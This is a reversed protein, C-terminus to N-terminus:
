DRDSRLHKGVRLDGLVASTRFLGNEDVCALLLAIYRDLAEWRASLFRQDGTWRWEDRLMLVWRMGWDWATVDLFSQPAFALFRGDALRSEEALMLVRRRAASSGGAWTDALQTRPQIDELWAGDERGPTDVYVDTNSVEAQIKALSIIQELRPDGGDFSGAWDLPYQSKILGLKDLTVSGATPFYIAVMLYRSTREDPLDAAEQGRGVTIYQDFYHRGVTDGTHIAGTSANVLASGDIPSLALEGYVFTLVAGSQSSRISLSPYGHVVRDFDFTVYRTEGALATITVPGSRTLNRAQLGVKEDMTFTAGNLRTDINLDHGNRDVALGSVTGAGIVRQVPFFFERQPVDQDNDLQVSWIPKKIVRAAKWPLLRMAQSTRPERRADQIVPFRIRLDGTVGVIQQRHRVFQPATTAKWRQDTAVDPLGTGVVPAIWLGARRTRTRQFNKIDGWNHHLVLLTNSGRVLWPGILVREPRVHDVTFRTVKRAVEHGNVYLAAQSDAAFWVAARADVTELRFDRQFYSFLNMEDAAADSRWIWQVERASADAVCLTQLS